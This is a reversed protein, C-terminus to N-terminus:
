WTAPKQGMQFDLEFVVGDRFGQVTVEAGEGDERVEVHGHGGVEACKSTACDARLM